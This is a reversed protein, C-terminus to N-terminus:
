APAGMTRDAMFANWWSRRTRRMKPSLLISQLRGEAMMKRVWRASCQAERACDNASMLGDSLLAQAQEQFSPPKAPKTGVTLVAVDATGHQLPRAKDRISM